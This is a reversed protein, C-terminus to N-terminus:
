NCEHENAWEKMEDYFNGASGRNQQQGQKKLPFVGKWGNVISQNIIEIKEDNDSTLKDLSKIILDIAHDTMPSKIKKRFEIFGLFADNLLADPFYVKKEPIEKSIGKKSNGNPKTEQKNITGSNQKSDQNSDQVGDQKGEQTSVQASKSMPIMKYATSQTGRPRFDIIDLQKLENRAKLIGSRSLGSQISLVQNSVTFWEQWYCLNNIHMLAYWLAIQGTSLNNLMIRDHFANIEALYNM